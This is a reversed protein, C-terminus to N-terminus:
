ESRSFFGLECAIYGGGVITISKPPRSLPFLNESTWVPYESKQGTPSSRSGTAIVIKEACLTEGNVSIVENSLFRTHGRYLDVSDPLRDEYRPDVQSIWQNTEAFM